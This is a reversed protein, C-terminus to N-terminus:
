MSKSKVLALGACLVFKRVKCKRRRWWSPLERSVPNQSSQRWGAVCMVFKTGQLETKELKRSVISQEMSKFEVLAPWGCVFTRVKCNRRRWWVPLAKSATSWSPWCTMGASRPSATRCTSCFSSTKKGRSRRASCGRLSKGWRCWWSSSTLLSSGALPETMILAQFHIAQNHM